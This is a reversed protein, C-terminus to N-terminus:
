ACARSRRAPVLCAQRPSGKSHRGIPEIASMSFRRLAACGARRRIGGSRVGEIEEASTHMTRWWLTDRCVDTARMMTRGRGARHIEDSCQGRGPALLGRCQACLFAWDPGQLLPSASSAALM